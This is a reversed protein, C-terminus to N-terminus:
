MSVLIRAPWNFSDFSPYRNMAFAICSTPMSGNKLRPGRVSRFPIFTGASSPNRLTPAAKREPRRPLSPSAPASSSAGRVALSAACAPNWIPKATGNVPDTPRLSSIFGTRLRSNFMIAKCSGTGISAHLALLLYKPRGNTIALLASRFINTPLPWRPVTIPSPPLNGSIFCIIRM